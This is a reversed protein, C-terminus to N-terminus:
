SSIGTSRVSATAAQDLLACALALLVGLASLAAGVWVALPIYAFIVEHEGAPVVVSRFAGFAEIVPAPKGDVYARWGPYYTESVVLLARCRAQVHLRLRNSTRRLYNVTEDGACSELKPSDQALMLARTRFPTTPDAIKKRLEGESSVNETEHVLWARPLANTRRYVRVGTRSTFAPMEHPNQPNKAISHTVGFLAQTQATHLEHRWINKTVSAGPGYVADFGYWEALNASVDADHILARVPQPESRLFSAIDDYQAFEALYSRWHESYRNPFVQLSWWELIALAALAAAWRLKRGLRGERVADIGLAFLIAVAFSFLSLARMPVRGKGLLPLTSFLLGHFPTNGGLAYLLSGAALAGMWRAAATRRYAILGALGFAATTLGVYFSRDRWNGGPAVIGWIAQIPMSYREAVVYPITENWTQPMELGTWRVALRGYEWAPLIQVASVLSLVALFIVLLKLFRRNCVALYVCLFVAAWALLVPVEHHGSLFAAGACAGALAASTLPRSGNAARYLFLFVAPIWVAGNAVDLWGCSGLFGAFSYATGAALSAAVGCGMVRACAYCFWAALWHIGLIYYWNFAAFSLNGHPFGLKAFALNLPYFPGPQMQGALPQGAWTYPAWLPFEHSRMARAQLQLRPIEINAMDYSDCWVYQDTLSLKWYFAVCLGLLLLPAAPQKWRDV